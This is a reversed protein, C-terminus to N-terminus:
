APRRGLSLVTSLMWTAKALPTCVVPLTDIMFPDPEVPVIVMPLVSAILITFPSAVVTSMEAAPASDSLPDLIENVPDVANELSMDRLLFTFSPDPVLETAILLSMEDCNANSTEPVIFTDPFNFTPLKIETAFLM